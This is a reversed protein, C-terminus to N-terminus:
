QTTFGASCAYHPAVLAELQTWPVVADMEHLFRERRTTKRKSAYVVSMFTRQENM